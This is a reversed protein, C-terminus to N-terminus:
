NERIRLRLSIPQTRTEDAILVEDGDLLGLEKFTKSLNATSIEGLEPILDSKVYLKDTATEISPNRLQFKEIVQEILDQLTAKSPIEVYQARHGCVLCDPLKELEVSGLHAGEVDAFNLYNNLPCAINSALKLAELACSAAIVGNTSAVAPIIRKLVGFTLRLTVGEIGYEAARKLSKEYIWKVHDANDCDLSADGFPKEKGWLIMKSYEICHEPLRPTNAITCVPFNIQPPYLGLTCEICATMTPLIVRANGKFGETGGDILPIIGVPNGESDFDVLSVVKSNLWRRAIISDLGCLIIDFSRYFNDDKDQIRCNHAIVNIDAIRSNVFSAAVVAKSKGVDSERFLFQRNLNSIDITDM